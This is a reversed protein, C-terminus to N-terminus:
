QKIFKKTIIEDESQIKIFYIGSNLNDLNFNETKNCNTKSFIFKGSIDYVQINANLINIVTVIDTAPNPFISISNSLNNKISAPYSYKINDLCFYAPTNMGYAGTHTSYLNFKLSDTMGFSNLNVTNWTDSVYSNGATYDALFFSVIGQSEGNYFGEIMIKFYDEDSFAPEGFAADGNIIVDATKKDNAIDVSQIQVANTFKCTIPINDYTGSEWDSPVYGIGFIHGLVSEAYAAYQTDSTITDYAFSFGTWSSWDSNYDNFFIIENNGFEGSEDSGNWYGSPPITLSEFDFPTQANLAFSFIAILVSTLLLNKKM